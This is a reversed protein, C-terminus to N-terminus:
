DSLKMAQEIDEGTQIQELLLTLLMENDLLMFAALDTPNFVRTNLQALEYIQLNNLDAYIKAQAMPLPAIALTATYTKPVLMLYALALLLAAFTVGIVLWKGSWLARVLDTLDIEDNAAQYQSSRQDSPAQM